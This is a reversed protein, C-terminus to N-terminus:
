TQGKGDGMSIKRWWWRWRRTRRSSIEMRWGMKRRRELM